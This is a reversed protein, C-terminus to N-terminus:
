ARFLAEFRSEISSGNLTDKIINKLPYITLARKARPADAQQPNVAQATMVSRMDTPHYVVYIDADENLQRFLKAVKEALRTTPLKGLIHTTANALNVMGNCAPCKGMGGRMNRDPIIGGCGGEGKKIQGSAPEVDDAEELLGRDKELCFYCLADGGGNLAGASEWVSLSFINPGATTRKPGFNVEIKYGAIGTLDRQKSVLIKDGNELSSVARKLRDVNV